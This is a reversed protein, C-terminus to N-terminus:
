LCSLPFNTQGTKRKKRYWEKLIFPQIYPISMLLFLYSLTGQSNTDRPIANGAKQTSLTQNSTISHGELPILAEAWANISTVPNCKNQARLSTRLGRVRGRWQPDMPITYEQLMTFPTHLYPLLSCSMRIAHLKEDRTCAKNYWWVENLFVHESIFNSLIHFHQSGITLGLATGKSCSGRHLQETQVDRFSSRNDKFPQHFSRM